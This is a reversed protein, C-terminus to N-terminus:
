ERIIVDIYENFPNVRMAFNFLYPYNFKLHEMYHVWEYGLLTYARNADNRIHELDKENLELVNQRYKLEEEFHFVAMLLETFTDHELLVPNELLKLLFVRQEFLLKKIKNLKLSKMDLDPQYKNSLSKLKQFDDKTWNCYIELNKKFENINKDSCSILRMLEIGVESFFIEIVMYLKSLMKEKEADEIVRHIILTVVIVEIPIFALDEVFFIFIHHLDNFILFHIVYLIVSSVILILMFRLEKKEIKM